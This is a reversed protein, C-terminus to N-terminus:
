NIVDPASLHVHIMVTLYTLSLIGQVSQRYNAWDESFYSLSEGWYNEMWTVFRWIKLVPRKVNDFTLTDSHKLQSIDTQFYRDPQQSLLSNFRYKTVGCENLTRRCMIVAQILLYQKHQLVTHATPSIAFPSLILASHPQYIGPLCPKSYNSIFQYILLSWDGLFLKLRKDGWINYLFCALFSFM